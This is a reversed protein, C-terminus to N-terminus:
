DKSVSRAVWSSASRSLKVALEFVASKLSASIAKKALRRGAKKPLYIRSSDAKKIYYHDYNANYKNIIRIRIPQSNGFFCFDIGAVDLHNVFSLDGQTKLFAYNMVLTERLREWHHMDYSAKEWATDNGNKDKIPITYTFNRLDNYNAPLNVERGYKILYKRLQANVPFIPKKRSPRDPQDSTKQNEFLNIM